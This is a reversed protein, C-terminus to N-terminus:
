IEIPFFKWGVGPMRDIIIPIDNAVKPLNTISVCKLILLLLIWFPLLRYNGSVIELSNTSIIRGHNEGQKQLIFEM